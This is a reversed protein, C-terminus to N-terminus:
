LWHDAENWTGVTALFAGLCVLFGGPGEDDGLLSSLLALFAATVIVLLLYAVLLEITSTPPAM